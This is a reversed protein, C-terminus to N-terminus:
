TIGSAAGGIAGEQNKKMQSEIGPNGPIPLDCNKPVYVWDDEGWDKYFIFLLKWICTDVVNFLAMGTLILDAKPGRLVSLIDMLGSFGDRVGGFARGGVNKAMNMKPTKFAEKNEAKRMEEDREM